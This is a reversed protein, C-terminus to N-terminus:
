FEKWIRDTRRGWVGRPNAGAGNAAANQGERPGNASNPPPSEGGDACIPQTRSSRSAILDLGCASEAARPEDQFAHPAVSRLERRLAEEACNEFRFQGIMSSLMRSQNALSRSAATAQEVLATDQQAVLVMHNAAADAHAVGEAQKKVCSAINSVAADIESARTEIRQLAEGAKAVLAVGESAHESSALMQGKIEKIAEASRQVLARVESAVASFGRGAEGARAAEVGGNLALLKTQFVIEDLAVIMRSIRSSSTEIGGVADIAQRVIEAGQQAENRAAGAVAAAQRAGEATKGVAAAIENVAAVTGELSAAQQGARRSLDNSAAEIAQAGLRVGETFSSISQLATVLREIALRQEGDARDRAASLKARTAAEEELHASIALDMDMFAAKVLSGLAAGAKDAAEALGFRFVSKPWLESLIASILHEVILCCGAIHWRPELGIGANTKGITRVYAFYEGGFRGSVISRWRAMQADKAASIHAEECFFSRAAPTARIQDYVKDLAKPLEREIIAQFQSIREASDSDFNILGMREAVSVDISQWENAM